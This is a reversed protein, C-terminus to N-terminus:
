ETLTARRRSNPQGCCTRCEKLVLNPPAVRWRDVTLSYRWCISACLPWSCGPISKDCGAISLLGDYGQARMVLEVSDAIWDRSVLSARMGESGMFIGSVSITDFEYAVVQQAAAQRLV